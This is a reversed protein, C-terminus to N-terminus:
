NLIDIFFNEYDKLIKDKNFKKYVSERISSPIWERKDNLRELFENENEVLFGNIEDEVIEKTGGPVNYALVPIGVACSELLANPFGETYSGQLFM